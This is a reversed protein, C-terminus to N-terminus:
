EELILYTSSLPREWEMWDCDQQVVVRRMLSVSLTFGISLTHVQLAEDGVYCLMPTGGATVHWTRWAGVTAFAQHSVDVPMRYKIEVEDRRKYSCEIM